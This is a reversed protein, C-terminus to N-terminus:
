DFGAAKIGPAVAIGRWECNVYPQWTWQEVGSSNNKRIVANV